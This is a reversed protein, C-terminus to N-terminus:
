GVVLVCEDFDFSYGKEVPHVCGVGLELCTLLKFGTNRKALYMDGPKIPADWQLHFDNQAAFAEAEQKNLRGGWEAVPVSTNM